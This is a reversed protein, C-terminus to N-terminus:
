RNSTFDFVPSLTRQNKLTLKGINSALVFATM